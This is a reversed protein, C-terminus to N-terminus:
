LFEMYEKAVKNMYDNFTLDEDHAQKMLTLLVDADLEMSICVRVDYDEDNFIATAKDIWDQDVDLDVFDVDDWAEKLNIQRNESESKRAEVYDPHTLRYARKNVYDLVHAEYVIQTKTDFVISASRSAYHTDASISWANPGYCSWQFDSGGSIEYKVAEMFDQITIM